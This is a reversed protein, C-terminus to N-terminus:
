LSCKQAQFQPSTSRRTFSVTPQTGTYFRCTVMVPVTASSTCAPFISTFKTERHPACNARTAETRHRIDVVTDRWCRWAEIHKWRSSPSQEPLPKAAAWDTAPSATKQHSSDHEVEPAVLPEGMLHYSLQRSIMKIARLQIQFDTVESKLRGKSSVDNAGDSTNTSQPASTAAGSQQQSANQAQVPAHLNRDATGDNHWACYSSARRYSNECLIRTRVAM